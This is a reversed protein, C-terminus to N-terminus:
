ATSQTALSNHNLEWYSIKEEETALGAGTGVWAGICNTGTPREKPIFHSPCSASWKGGDLASTLFPPATGGSEGYARM